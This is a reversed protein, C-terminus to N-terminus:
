GAGSEVPHGAEIWAKYGGRVNVTDLGQRNLFEVARGSRAGSGCIVYVTEDEPVEEIREPVDPLPILQAGPLHFREYEDPNRVDLIPVGKSQAVVLEDIGIEPVEM